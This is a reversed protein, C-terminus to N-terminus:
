AAKAHAGDSSPGKAAAPWWRGVADHLMQAAGQLLCGAPCNSLLRGRCAHGELGPAASGAQDAQSPAGSVAALLRPHFLHSPPLVMHAISYVMEMVQLRRLHAPRWALANSLQAPGAPHHPCRERGGAALLHVGSSGLAHPKRLAEVISGVKRDHHMARFLADLYATLLRPPRAAGVM